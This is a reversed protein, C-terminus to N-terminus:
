KNLTKERKTGRISDYWEQIEKEMDRLIFGPTGRLVSLGELVSGRFEFKSDACRCFGLPLHEFPVANYNDSLFGKRDYYDAPTIVFHTVLQGSQTIFSTNDSNDVCYYYKAM